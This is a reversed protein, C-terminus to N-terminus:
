FGSFFGKPGIHMERIHSGLSCGGWSVLDVVVCDRGVVSVGSRVLVLDEGM